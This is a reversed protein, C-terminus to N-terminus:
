KKAMHQALRGFFDGVERGDLLAHHGHVSVPMQLSGDRRTMKGVSIKPCSDPHRFQRAHSLATFDVWPVASFHIVDDGAVGVNLGSTAAIRDIERQAGQAFEVFDTRFPIRSFDFTGDPRNITASAHVSDHIVVQEGRIRYRFAEVENVAKMVAHLYTLFFSQGRERSQEYAATCDVRTTIGFFPEEFERFFAYHERRNWGELDLLTM